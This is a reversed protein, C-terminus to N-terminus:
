FENPILRFIGDEICFTYRHSLAMKKIVRITKRDFHRADDILILHGKVSHAFIAELESIIPANATTIAGGAHADLWFLAPEKLEELVREIEVASDGRLLKINGQGKFRERVQNYLSIDLEISYIKEFYGSMKEIMWGEETGTEVFIKINPTQHQLLISAKEEPNIKIGLSPHYLGVAALIKKILHKIQM